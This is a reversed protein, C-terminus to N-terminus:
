SKIWLNWVSNVFPNKKGRSLKIMVYKFIRLSVWLIFPNTVSDHGVRQPGVSQTAWWAGGDMPNKLCSYQFPNGNEQRPILGLHGMSCASEVTHAVLSTTDLLESWNKQELGPLLVVTNLLMTNGILITPFPHKYILLLDRHVVMMLMTLMFCLMVYCLMVYSLMMLMVLSQVSCVSEDWFSLLDDGPVYIWISSNWSKWFWNRWCSSGGSSFTKLTIRGVRSQDFCQYDPSCIFFDEPMEKGM